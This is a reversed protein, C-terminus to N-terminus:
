KMESWISHNVLAFVKLAAAIRLGLRSEHDVSAEGEHTLIICFDTDIKERHFIKIRQPGHKKVVDGVLEQLASKLAMNSKGTSRVTILEVWKM